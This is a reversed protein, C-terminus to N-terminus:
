RGCGDVYWDFSGPFEVPVEYLLAGDSAYVDLFGRDTRAVVRGDPLVCPVDAETLAGPPPEPTTSGSPIRVMATLGDFTATEVYLSGDPAERPHRAFVDAGLAGPPLREVVAGGDISVECIGAGLRPDGVDDGCVFLVRADDFTLGPDLGYAHGSAADLRGPAATWETAVRDARRLGPGPENFVVRGGDGTIASLGTQPDAEVAIVTAAAPDRVPAAFLCDECGARRGTFVLWEGDHSLGATGDEPTPGNQPLLPDLVATVDEPLAGERLEVRYLRYGDGIAVVLAHGEDSPPSLASPPEGLCGADRECVEGAMCAAHDLVDVCAGSPACERRACAAPPAPGCDAASTCAPPGCAAPTEETCGEAVCRGALCATLTPDGAGPCVVGACDRTLWVTVARVGTAVEFSVARELVLGGSADRATVVARHRGPPLAAEAVRVGLGWDRAEGAAVEFREGTSLAAEIRAFDSGPGLDTRVSLVLTGEGECAALSALAALGLAVGRM